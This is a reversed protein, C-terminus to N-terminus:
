RLQQTTVNLLSDSKHAEIEDHVIHM